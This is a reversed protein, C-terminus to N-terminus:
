EDFHRRGRRQFASHELHDDSTLGLVEEAYSGDSRLVEFDLEKLENRVYVVKSDGSGHGFRQLNHKGVFEEINDISKEDEDVLVDDFAFYTLAQQEYGDENADYEERTVVYPVGNRRALREEEMDFDEDTLPVGEAFINSVKTEAVAVEGPNPNNHEPVEESIEEAVKSLGESSTVVQVQEGQYSRMATSAAQAAESTRAVVPAPRESEPVLMEVADAPTLDKKYARVTFFERAEQIEKELREDFTVELRRKTLFAGAAVGVTTSFVSIGAIIVTERNM